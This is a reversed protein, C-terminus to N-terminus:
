GGRIRITPPPPAEDGDFGVILEVVTEGVGEVPSLFGEWALSHENDGITTDDVEMLSAM